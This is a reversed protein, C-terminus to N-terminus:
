TCVLFKKCYKMLKKNVNPVRFSKIIFLGSLKTVRSLVVYTMSVTLARCKKFDICIQDYTQGQSKHIIIAVTPTLPYQKRIIQYETNKSLYLVHGIKTIPTLKIDINQAKMCELYQARAKNGIKSSNFDLWLKETETVSNPEFTIHKLCGTSGNVLGDEVDINNTIMYKIAKKISLKYPYGGTESLKKNILGNLVKNKVYDSAKGVIKDKAISNYDNGPYNEIRQQNYDNVDVNKDFLRIANEPVDIEYIERSKILKIDSNTMDSAALNNLCTIIETEDKQRMIQNLEYYYFENWLPNTDLLESLQNIKPAKYIPKDMVPPLHNLDGVALISVGGFPEKVGKIQRLRTDIYHLM